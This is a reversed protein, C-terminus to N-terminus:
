LKIAANVEAPRVERVEREAKERGDLESRIRENRRKLLAGRPRLRLDRTTSRRTLIQEVAASAPCDAGTMLTESTFGCPVSDRDLQIRM